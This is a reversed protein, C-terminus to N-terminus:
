PALKPDNLGDSSVLALRKDLAMFYLSFPTHEDNSSIVLQPANGRAATSVPVGDVELRLDLELARHRGAAEWGQEAARFLQYGQGDLRLGLTRGELVAQQRAHQLMQLFLSAEQNAVRQPDRGFKLGAMGMVIGLLVMVVLLELLTFGQAQRRKM